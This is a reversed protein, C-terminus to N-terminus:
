EIVTKEDITFFLNDSMDYGDYFLFKVKYGCYLDKDYKLCKKVWKILYEHRKKNTITVRKNSKDNFHDPNYRLFICPLGDFSQAIEYMRIMEGKMKGNKDDGYASCKYSKHQNEDVEILLVHTGCHYVFDPRKRSCNNDIIEDKFTIDMKIEEKLLNGIYLEQKKIHKKIINDKEELSCFNVCLGDKNLVDIRGCKENKCKREALNYEDLTMHKECHTPKDIGHTAIDKCQQCKRRPNKLMGEKRHEVCYSVPTGPLSYTAYKRCIRELCKVSRCDVMNPDKCKSCYMAKMGEINYTARKNKCKECKSSSIINIMGDEKCDNCFKKETQGEFNYNPRKKNCKQCTKGYINIMGNEKCDNCYKPLKENLFNFSPQKLGCKICRKKIVDIMDEKKCDICYKGIKSGLTNFYAAKKNCEECKKTVLNIMNSEKCDFCYKAKKEGDINYTPQKLKCKQCKKNKVDVMNPEKCDGCFIGVKMGEFNYIPGKIKCKECKKSRVDIMEPEKCKLCFKAGQCRINFRAIGIKCKECKKSETDKFVNVMTPDMHTSCKVGYNMGNFNFRARIGCIDCSNKRSTLKARCSNCKAFEKPNESTKFNEISLNKKCGNCKKEM